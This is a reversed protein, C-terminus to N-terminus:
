CALASISMIHLLPHNVDARPSQTSSCFSITFAHGPSAPPRSPTRIHAHVAAGFSRIPERSLTYTRDEPPRAASEYLVAAQGTDPTDLALPTAPPRPTDLDRTPSTPTSRRSHATHFTARMTPTTSTSSSSSSSSSSPASSTITTTTTATATATATTTSTAHTHHDTTAPSPLSSHVM